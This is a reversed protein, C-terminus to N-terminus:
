SLARPPEFPPPASLGIRSGRKMLVFAQPGNAALSIEVESGALAMCGGAACTTGSPCPKQASHLHPKSCDPTVSCDVSSSVMIEAPSHSMGGFGRMAGFLQLALTLGIVAILLVRMMPNTYVVFQRRFSQETELFSLKPSGVSTLDLMFKRVLPCAPNSIM